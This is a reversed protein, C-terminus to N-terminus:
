ESSHKWTASLSGCVVDHDLRLRIYWMESASKKVLSNSLLQGLRDHCIDMARLLPANDAIYGRHPRAGTAMMFLM